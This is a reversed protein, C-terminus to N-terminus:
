GADDAAGDVSPIDTPITVAGNPDESDTLTQNPDTPPLEPLRLGADCASVDGTTSVVTCSAGNIDDKSCDRVIRYTQELAANWCQSIVWAHGDPVDGSAVIMDSRGGVGVSNRVRALVLEQADTATGEVNGRYALRVRNVQTKLHVEQLLADIGPKVSADRTFNKLGFALTTGAKGHAFGALIVGSATVTPDVTDLANLDFGLVGVGRRAAIGVVIEGAAVRTYGTGSGTPRADLRWKFDRAAPHRMIFRFDTVGRTVPGWVRLDGQERTPPTNRVLAAIHVLSARMAQNLDYVAERAGNLDPTGAGAADVTAALEDTAMATPDVADADTALAESSPDSTISMQVAALEPVGDSYNDSSGSGSTTTSSCAGLLLTSCLLTLSTTNLTRIHKM